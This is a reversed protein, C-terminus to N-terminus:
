GVGGRCYQAPEGYTLGTMLLLLLLFWLFTKVSSFRRSWLLPCHPVPPASTDPPCKPRKMGVPRRCLSKRLASSSNSPTGQLSEDEWPGVPDKLAKGAPRPIIPLIRVRQIKNINNFFFFHPRKSFDAIKM